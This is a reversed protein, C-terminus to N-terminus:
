SIRTPKIIHPWIHEVTTELVAATAYAIDLRPTLGDILRYFHRDSVRIRKAAHRKPIRKSALLAELHNPRFVVAVGSLDPPQPSRRRLPRPM